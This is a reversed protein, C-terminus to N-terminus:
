DTSLRSLCWLDVRGRDPVQEYGRRIGERTFGANEATRLSAENDLDVLVELREIGLDAFAWRTALELAQAAWGSGRAEDLLWYVAEGNGPVERLVIGVQGICRETPDDVANIALRCAGVEWASIAREIWAVAKAENPDRPMFTHGTIQPDRGAAMVAHVDDARFPRLAFQSTRLPPDPPQVSTGM